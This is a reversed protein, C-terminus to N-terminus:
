SKFMLTIWIVFFCVGGGVIMFKMLKIIEAMLVVVNQTVDGILWGLM